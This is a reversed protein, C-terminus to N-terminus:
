KEQRPHGQGSLQAKPLQGNTSAEANLRLMSAPFQESLLKLFNDFYRVSIKDGSVAHVVMKVNTGNLSVSDGIQFESM